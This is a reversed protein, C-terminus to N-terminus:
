ATRHKMRRWLRFLPNFCRAQKLADSAETFNPRVALAREYYGAAATSEGLGELMWGLQYLLLPNNPAGRLATMLHSRAKAPLRHRNYAMGIRMQIHWDDPAYEIAKLFCRHANTEPQRTVLLSEGRALWVWASPWRMEVAGDLYSPGESSGLYVLALGKAALLDPTNAFRELARDSWTIAEPYEGLCILCRVQGVWAAVLDKNFRLAKSYAVLAQEYLGVQFHEDGKTLCGQADLNPWPDDTVPLAARHTRSDFDLNAFRGM